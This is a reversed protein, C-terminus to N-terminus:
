AVTKEPYDREIKYIKRWVISTKIYFQAARKTSPIRLSFKGM